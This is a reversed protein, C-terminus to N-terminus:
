VQEDNAGKKAATAANHIALALVYLEYGEVDPHREAMCRLCIGHSIPGRHGDDHRIVSRCYMCETRM